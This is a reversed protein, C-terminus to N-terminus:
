SQLQELADVDDDVDDLMVKVNFLKTTVIYTCFIYFLMLM